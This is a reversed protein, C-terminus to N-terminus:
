ELNWAGRNKLNKIGLYALFTGFLTMGFFGVYTLFDLIIFMAIDTTHILSSIGANILLFIWALIFFVLYYYCFHNIKKGIDDTKVLVLDNIFTLMLTGFFSILMIVGFIDWLISQIPNIFFVIGLFITILNILLIFYNYIELHKKSIKM